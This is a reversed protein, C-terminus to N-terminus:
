YAPPADLPGFGAHLCEEFRLLRDVLDYLQDDNLDPVSAAHVRDLYRAVELGWGHYSAIRSIERIARARPTQELMPHETELAYGEYALRADREADQDKPEVVGRLATLKQQVTDEM